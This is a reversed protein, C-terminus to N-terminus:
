LRKVFFFESFRDEKNEYSGVNEYGLAEYFEKGQWDFTDLRIMNAGLLKARREVENMVKKGIGRRRYTEAVYVTSVYLIHFATMCADAGAILQSNEYIGISVNGELKFQIHKRDYEELCKELEGIQEDKLEVIEVKKKM